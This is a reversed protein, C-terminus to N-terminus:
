KDGCASALQDHSMLCLDFIWGNHGTLAYLLSSTGLDWVKITKDRSGSAIRNNPLLCIAFVGKNHGILTTKLFDRLM